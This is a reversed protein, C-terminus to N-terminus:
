VAFHLRATGKGRVQVLGMAELQAVHYRVGQRSLGVIQALHKQLIGPNARLAQLLAEQTRTLYPKGDLPEGRVYFRTRFGERVCRVFGHRELVGLHHVLSGSPLGLRRRIDGFSIGPTNQIAAFIESRRANNLVADRELRSFLFGLLLWQMLRYRGLRWVFRGLGALVSTVVVLGLAIFGRGVEEGAPGAGTTRVNTYTTPESISAVSGSDPAQDGDTPRGLVRFETHASLNEFRYGSGVTWDDGLVRKFDVDWSIQRGGVRGAGNSWCNMGHDLPRDGPEWLCVYVLIMAEEFAVAVFPDEVDGIRTGNWDVLDFAVEFYAGTFMGGIPLDPPLPVVDELQMVIHPGDFPRHEVWVKRIDLAGVPADGAPDIIEPEERSGASAAFAILPVLLLVAYIRM